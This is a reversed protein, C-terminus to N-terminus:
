PSSRRFRPWGLFDALKNYNEPTPYQKGKIWSYVTWNSVGILEALEPISYGKKACDVMLMDLFKRHYPSQRIVDKRM